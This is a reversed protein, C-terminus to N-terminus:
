DSALEIDFIIYVGETQIHNGHYGHSISWEDIKINVVGGDVVTTLQAIGVKEGETNIMEVHVAETSSVEESEQETEEVEEEAGSKGTGCASLLFVISFLSIAYVWHKM